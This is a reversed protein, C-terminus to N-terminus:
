EHGMQLPWRDMVTPDKEKKVGGDGDYSPTVFFFIFSISERFCFHRKVEKGDFADNIRRSLKFELLPFAFPLLERPTVIDNRVAPCPRGVGM